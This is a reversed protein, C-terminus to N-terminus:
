KPLKEPVILGNFQAYFLRELYDDDVTELERITKNLSDFREPNCKQLRQMISDAFMKKVVDVSPIKWEGPRVHFVDAHEVADTKISNDNENENEMLNGGRYELVSLYDRLPRSLTSEIVKIEYQKVVKRSFDMFDIQRLMEKSIQVSFERQILRDMEDTDTNFQIPKSHSFDIIIAHGLTFDYYNYTENILINNLHFDCHKYGIMHMLRLQHVALLVYLNFNPSTILSELPKYLKMSEMATYGVDHKFIQQIRLFDQTSMTKQMVSLLWHKYKDDTIRTSYLMCPCIPELFTTENLFSKKYINQQVTAENEFDKINTVMVECHDDCSENPIKNCVVFKFLLERVPKNFNGLRTTMYPSQVFVNLELKVIISTFGRAFISFSSNEIFFHLATMVTHEKTQRIRVGGKRNKQTKRSKKM